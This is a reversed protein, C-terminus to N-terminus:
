LNAVGWSETVTAAGDCRDWISDHALRERLIRYHTHWRGVLFDFDAHGDRSTPAVPSAGSAGAVGAIFFGVLM